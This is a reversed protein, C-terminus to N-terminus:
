ETESLEYFEDFLGKERLFENHQKLATGDLKRTAVATAAVAVTVTLATKHKAVFIKASTAANKINNM